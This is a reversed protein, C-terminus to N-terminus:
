LFQKKDENSLIYILQIINEFNGLDKLFLNYIYEKMIKFEEDNYTKILEYYILLKIKNDLKNIREELIDCNKEYLFIKSIFKCLIKIAENLEDEIKLSEIYKKIINDYKDKLLNYYQTINDPILNINIIEIVTDFNSINKIKSIIKNLFEIINNKFILEFRLNQFAKILSLSANDLNIYDFISLYRIQNYKKDDDEDKINFYPNYKEILVLIEEDRLHMKQMKILDQINKNLIYAFEDIEYYRKIDNKIDYKDDKNKDKNDKFINDKNKNINREDDNTDDKFLNNILNYYKKFINRLKYCIDINELNPYNYQKLLNIWFESTFYILLRRKTYSFDIIEEIYTIINNIYEHNSDKKNKIILEFQIKFPEIDNYKKIIENKYIIIVYIFTEIDKIYNLIKKFINIDKNEIVYGIFDCYFQKDLKLSNKFYSYFIILIEYLIYANEKYLKQINIM